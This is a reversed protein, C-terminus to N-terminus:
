SASITSFRTRAGAPAQAASGADGQAPDRVPRVPSRLAPPRGSGPARHLSRVLTPDSQRFHRHRAGAAVARFPGAPCARSRGGGWRVARRRIRRCAGPWRSHELRPDIARGGCRTRCCVGSSTANPPLCVRSPRRWREGASTSARRTSTTSKCTPPWRPSYRGLACRRVRAPVVPRHGSRCIRNGVVAGRCSRRPIAPCGLHRLGRRAPYDRRDDGSGHDLDMVEDITAVDIARRDCRRDAGVYPELLAAVTGARRRGECRAPHRRFLGGAHPVRRVGRRTGDELRDPQRRRCRRNRSPFSPHSM